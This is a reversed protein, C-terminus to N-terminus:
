VGARNAFEQSKMVATVFSGYSFGAQFQASWAQIEADGPARGLLQAYIQTVVAARAENRALVLRAVDYPNIQLGSYYDYDQQTPAGGIVHSFVNDLWPNFGNTQTAAYRYIDATVELETWGRRFANQYYAIAEPSAGVGVIQRVLADVQRGRHEDSYWILDVFNARSGGSRLYLLWGALGNAEAARGLITTYVVNIFKADAQTKADSVGNPDNTLLQTKSIVPINKPISFDPPSTFTKPFDPDGGTVVKIGGKLEGFNNNYGNTNPPLVIGSFVDNGTTGGQVGITDKGDTFGSPQTETLTYTGPRLGTFSYLGTADAMTQRFVSGLDDSGTLTVITGPIPLEDAQKIGDNRGAASTDQYVYGSLTSPLIEGFDYKVGQGGAPLSIASFVDNTKSGGLSGLSDKGDMYAVPQLEVIQYTGPPLNDFKYHGNADTVANMTFPQNNFAVGNLQVTVGGIGPEGADQVGNNYGTPSGDYFVTGELSAPRLEGFNNNVGDFGAPLSINGFQDNITDGGPTGITDKGDTYGAPQVEFITYGGPRLNDFKYFGNADTVTTKYVHGNEDNGDLVILVGAIGAENGQKIGDNYGGPNVDAYVYGSLSAAKIEGFDNNPMDVNTLTLPIISTGPPNPIVTKNRSEKGDFFGPPDSTQILTYTGPKLCNNPIYHYVVTVQANATSTVGVLLNGGGNATSSAEATETVQVSGTGLFPNMAAGTLVITQSGNATKTGFDRGSTGGFDLVKDYVTANFTGANQAINTEVKLGNPGNLTLKGGVTANITTASSNSTNEAVIGSTIAGANIIEISQLDGLQPDFQGILGSLNYNTQTEPFTLTKTLTMPATNITADHDFQYYGNGDTIATGVVVNQANRLEIPSNAIPAEGVERTGNNNLDYFVYGSIVNCTPLFRDELAELQPPRSRHGRSAPAKRSKGAPSQGNSSSRFLDM